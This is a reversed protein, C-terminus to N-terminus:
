ALHIRLMETSRLEVASKLSINLRRGAAQSSAEVRDNNFFVSVEDGTAGDPLQLALTRLKVRGWKVSLTTEMASPQVQQSFTGWGEAAVFAASFNSESMRPAFGIHQRPGHYEFGCM